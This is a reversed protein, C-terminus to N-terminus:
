YWFISCTLCFASDTHYHSEYYSVWPSVRVFFPSQIVFSYLFLVANRYIYAKSTSYKLGIVKIGAEIIRGKRGAQANKLQIKKEGSISIRARLKALDWWGVVFHIKRRIPDISGFGVLYNPQIIACYFFFYCWLMKYKGHLLLRFYCLNECLTILSFFFQKM